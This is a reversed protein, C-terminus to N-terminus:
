RISRMVVQRKMTFSSPFGPYSILMSFPYHATVSVRREGTTKEITVVIDNNSYTTNGNADTGKTLTSTDITLNTDGASNMEKRAYDQINILWNSQTSSTYPNMVGYFAGSRTANTLAIFSYAFRGLDICGLIMVALVPLFVALEAAAAGSRRCCPPKCRM